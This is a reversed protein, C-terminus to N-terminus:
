KLDKLLKVYQKKMIKNVSGTGNCVPCDYERFHQEGNNDVYEWEVTGDGGCESCTGVHKIAKNKEVQELCRKLKEVELVVNKCVQANDFEEYTRDLLPKDITEYDNGKVLDEDYSSIVIHCDTANVALRGKVEQLFPKRLNRRYDDKVPITELFEQLKKM